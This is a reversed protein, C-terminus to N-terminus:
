LNSKGQVVRGTNVLINAAGSPLQIPKGDEVTALVNGGSDTVEFVFTDLSRAAPGAIYEGGLKFQSGHCPCAFIGSADSWPYICGLHTCIKYLVNVGADTNVLWFKGVDNAVPPKNLEPIASVPAAIKGGFQGPRFRPFSFLFTLGGFQATFLAISAAWVYNLFERRNVAGPPTYVPEEKKAAAAPAAKAVAPAAAAAPAAPKAVPAAPASGAAAAPAAAKIGASPAVPKLGAGPAVPKLGSGPTVPKIGAGPAVPKIGAGPAVPKAAPAPAAEAADAAAPEAPKPAPASAASGANVRKMGTLGALASGAKKAGDAAGKAADQPTNEEAMDVEV